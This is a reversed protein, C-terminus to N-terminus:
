PCSLRPTGLRRGYCRNEPADRYHGFSEIRAYGSSEYLAMAEPQATGTELIMAAAGVEAATEELRALM